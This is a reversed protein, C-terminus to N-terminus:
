QPYLVLLHEHVQMANANLSSNSNPVFLSCCGVRLAESHTALTENMSIQSSLYDSNSVLEKM